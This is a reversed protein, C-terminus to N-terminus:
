LSEVNGDISITQGTINRAAPSCLFLAAAAVDEATVMRRLSIKGLYQERMSSEDIQVQQARARIVTDMREGEVFGPLLANVRVGSPGLEAALSKVLGLIAWKTTAYPTRWAYGLRGAVSSMCLIHGQASEKLLPVALHAFRYQANLNVDVTRMWESEVISDIGDTPGSIGANNVLVDLGGFLRKQADFVAEIEAANVVDAQTATIAPGYRGIEAVAARDVDCVHVKAGTEAFALAITAGIGSAGGTILVRLGSCPVLLKAISLRSTERSIFKHKDAAGNDLAVTSLLLPTFLL